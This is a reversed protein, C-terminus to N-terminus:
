RAGTAAAIGRVRRPPPRSAAPHMVRSVLLTAKGTGTAGLLYRHVVPRKARTGRVFVITLAAYGDHDLLAGM